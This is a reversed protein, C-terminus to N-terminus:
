VVSAQDLELRAGRVIMGIKHREARHHELASLEFPGVEEVFFGEPPETLVTVLSKGRQGRTLFRKRPSERVGLDEDLARGGVVPREICDDIAAIVSGSASARVRM